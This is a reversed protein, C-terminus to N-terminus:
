LELHDNLSQSNFFLLQLHKLVSYFLLPKTILSLISLLYKKYKKLLLLRGPFGPFIFVTQTKSAQLM